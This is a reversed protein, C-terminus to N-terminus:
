TAWAPRLNVIRRFLRGLAPIVAYAVMGLESIAKLSHKQVMMFDFFSLDFWV